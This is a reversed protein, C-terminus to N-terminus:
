RLIEPKDLYFAKLLMIKICLIDVKRM